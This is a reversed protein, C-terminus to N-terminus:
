KGVLPLEAVRVAMAVIDPSDVLDVAFSLACWDFRRNSLHAVILQLIQVVNHLQQGLYLTVSSTAYYGFEGTYVTCVCDVAANM